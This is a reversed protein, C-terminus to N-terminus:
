GTYEYALSAVKYKCKKCMWIGSSLRFLKNNYKCSPCKHMTEKKAIIQNYMKRLKYGFKNTKLRNM